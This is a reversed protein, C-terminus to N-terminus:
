DRDHQPPSFITWKGDSVFINVKNSIAQKTLHYKTTDLTENLDSKHYLLGGKAEVLFRVRQEETMYTLGSWQEPDEENHKLNSVLGSNSLAKGLGGDKLMGSTYYKDEHKKNRAQM